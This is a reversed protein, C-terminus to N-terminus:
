SMRYSRRVKFFFGAKCVIERFLFRQLFDQVGHMALIEEVGSSRIYESEDSLREALEDRPEGLRDEAGPRSHSQPPGRLRGHDDVICDGFCDYLPSFVVKRRVYLCISICSCMCVYMCEYVYEYVFLFAHMCVNCLSVHEYM